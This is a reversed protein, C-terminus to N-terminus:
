ERTGRIVGGQFLQTLTLRRRCRQKWSETAAPVRGRRPSYVYFVESASKFSSPFNSIYMQRPQAQLVSVALKSMPSSLLPVDM